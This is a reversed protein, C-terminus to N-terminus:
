KTTRNNACRHKTLKYMRHLKVFSRNVDHPITYVRIRLTSRFGMTRPLSLHDRYARYSASGYVLCAPVRRAYGHTRRPQRGRFVWDSVKRWWREGLIPLGGARRKEAAPVAVDRNRGDSRSPAMPAMAYAMTFVPHERRRVTKAPQKLKSPWRVLRRLRNTALFTIVSIESHFGGRGGKLRFLSDTVEQTSKSASCAPLGRDSKQYAPVRWVGHRSEEEEEAAAHDPRRWPAPWLLSRLRAAAGDKSTVKAEIVVPGPSAPSTGVFNSATQRPFPSIILGHSRTRGPLAPPLGREFFELAAGRPESFELTM